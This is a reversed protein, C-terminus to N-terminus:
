PEADGTRRVRPPRDRGGPVAQSDEVLVSSATARLDRETVERLLGAPPPRPGAVPRRGAARSTSSASLRIGAVTTGTMSTRLCPSKTGLLRMTVPGPRRVRISGTRRSTPSGPRGPGTGRPRTTPSRKTASATTGPGARRRRSRSSVKRAAAPGVPLSGTHQLQAQESLVDDAPPPTAPQGPQGLVTQRRSRSPPEDVGV